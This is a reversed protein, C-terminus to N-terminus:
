VEFIKTFIQVQPRGSKAVSWGGGGGAGAHTRRQNFGGGGGRTRVDKLHIAGKNYLTGNVYKTGDFNVIKLWRGRENDHGVGM